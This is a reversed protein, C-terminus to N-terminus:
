WREILARWNIYPGAVSRVFGEPALFYTTVYNTALYGLRRTGLAQPRASHHMRLMQCGEITGTERVTESAWKPLKFRPVDQQQAIRRCNELPSIRLHSNQFLCRDALISVADQEKAIV